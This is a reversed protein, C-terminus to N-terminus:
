RLIAAFTKFLIKLDLWLSWNQIYRIALKNKAPAIENLYRREPDESAELLASENRFEISALDTMGPRVSLLITRTGDDWKDVYRPVEPRPGVLSMDGVFVNLLQPLEDIKSHRLSTGIRTIRADDRVTLEPGQGSAGSRMTRFKFIHFSEGKRGVRKQRFFVPGPSDLKILVSIVALVPSLVLLGVGSAVVDFLRKVSKV